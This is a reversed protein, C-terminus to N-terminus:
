TWCTFRPNDGAMWAGVECEQVGIRDIPRRNGNCMAITTIGPGWHCRDTIWVQSLGHYAWNSCTRTECPPLRNASRAGRAFRLHHELALQAGAVAAASKDILVFPENPDDDRM